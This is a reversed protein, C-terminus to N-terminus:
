KKRRSTRIHPDPPLYRAFADEFDKKRYGKLRSQASGVNTPHIEYNDLLAAVQRQTIAGGRNYECWVGDRDAVLKAVVEASTMKDCGGVFMTRFAALLQRGYSPKSTTRSLREATDRAQKPWNGGALEAIALLLKWNARLRNSFGAPLRPKADKLAAANDAAWRALKRRLNTFEEDDQYLFDDAEEGDRKPRMRIEISRGALTPPLKRGLLGVIKPCFPDYWVTTNVGQIRETRPVRTGRTWAINFIHKVDTKRQFLDDAEDVILTPKERDVFRYISPGTPEAGTFSKPTLQALVGLLTTKGSETEASTVVLYPSHIAIDNHVWAMMVWLDAALRQHAQTVVHKGSKAILGELLEATAVPEPWPEVYWETTPAVSRETEVFEDFETRLFALDEDLQKALEVLKKEHQDSPLKILTAFAKAKKTAKREADREIQRQERERKRTEEREATARQKEEHQRLKEARQERRRNDAKAETEQKEREKVAANVLNQLEQLPIGLHEARRPMEWTREAAPHRSIRAVEDMVRREQEEAAHEPKEGSPFEVVKREDEM